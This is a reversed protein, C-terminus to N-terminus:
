PTAEANPRWNLEDSTLGDLTRYLRSRYEELTDRAFVILSM